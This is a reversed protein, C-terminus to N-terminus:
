LYKINFKNGRVMPIGLSIRTFRYKQYDLAICAILGHWEDVLSEYFQMLSNEHDSDTKTKLM